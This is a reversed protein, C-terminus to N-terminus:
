AAELATATENTKPALVVRDVVRRAAANKSENKEDDRAGV